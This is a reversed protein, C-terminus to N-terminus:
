KELAEAFLRPGVSDLVDKGPDAAMGAMTASAMPMVTSPAQSTASLTRVRPSCASPLSWIQALNHLLGIYGRWRM